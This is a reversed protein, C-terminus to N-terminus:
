YDRGLVLKEGEGAGVGMEGKSCEEMEGVKRGDYLIGNRGKEHRKDRM